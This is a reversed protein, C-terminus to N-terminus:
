VKVILKKEALKDLFEMTDKMCNERDVEYEDMLKSILDEIKIPKETLEWIRSGIENLGYYEGNEISMMVIENDMYSSLMKPDRHITDEPTFTM